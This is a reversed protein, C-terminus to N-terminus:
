AAPQDLDVAELYYPVECPWGLEREIKQRLADAAAPEGHTVFTRRPAPQLARMWAVIEGRDAHASMDDLQVVEAHVRVDQGHIRVTPAGAAIAAGRTGGAQFGALVITNRRDPAFAKIHHVVRGGTVMGSGAVIVMPGHRANLRESEEPTEVIRVSAKMEDCEAATLRLEDRHRAYVEMASAAMPSNLFVPLDPIRRERKLTALCHLLSQARGVAFAPIVVVGDRAATRNVVAAIRDLPESDPHDRDGYTSEVVLFDAGPVPAPPKLVLDHPRGVDGSFLVSTRGDDIRAFTSGIM